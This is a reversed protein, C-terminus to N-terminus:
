ARCWAARVEEPESLTLLGAARSRLGDYSAGRIAEKVAPIAAGNMSLTEVGLGVLLLATDPDGAMEGCVSVDIGAERGARVTRRIMSLVAPHCPDGLHAVKENGRDVALAYQALDNTGISFFAVERALQPAIEVAAPVEIMVGLPMDENHPIGEEALLESARRLHERAQRVEALRSVLPLMIRGDHGRAAIQFAQIQAIFEEPRDLSLRISRHGLFPNAEQWDGPGMLKDGGLDLTRFVVPVDPLAEFVAAYLQAQEARSPLTDRLLFSMETRYLGVGEAGNQAALHVDASLAVNAMLRIRHGDRTEAALERLRDRRARAVRADDIASAFAREVEAGPRVIVRGETGDLALRDGDSIRRHADRVGTVAPIEFSRALLAGHSTPGGHAAVLGVAGRARLEVVASASLLPIVAVRGRVSPSPADEGALARVLRQRLEVVDESRQRIYADPANELQAAIGLLVSEVARCASMGGEIAARLRRMLVEDSLILLHSGFILASEEGAERQTFERIEGLEERARALARDLRELEEAPSIPAVPEEGEEADDGIVSAEALVLGGSTGRGRLVQPEDSPGAAGRDPAHWDDVERWYARGPGGPRGLAEVLRANEVLGVLQSAIAALEEREEVTFERSERSRVVISGVPRSGISLPEGLYSHYGEEGTEPFYRYQPHSPADAVSLGRLGSVVQGTLGEEFGLSVEGVSEPRFGHSAVLWLRHDTPDLLYISCVDVEMREAVLDVARDLLGRLSPSERILKALERPISM